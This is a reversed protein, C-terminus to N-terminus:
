QTIVRRIGLLIRQESIYKVSTLIVVGAKKSSIIALDIKEMIKKFRTHINNYTAYLQTLTKRLLTTLVNVNLTIITLNRGKLKGNTKWKTGDNRQRPIKNTAKSNVSQIKLKDNIM